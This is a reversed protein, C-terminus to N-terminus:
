IDYIVKLTDFFLLKVIKGGGKQSDQSAAV